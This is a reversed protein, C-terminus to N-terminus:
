ASSYWLSRRDTWIFKSQKRGVKKKHKSTWTYRITFVQLLLKWIQFDIIYFLDQISVSLYPSYQSFSYALKSFYIRCFSVTSLTAICKKRCKRQDFLPRENGAAFTNTDKRNCYELMFRLLVNIKHPFVMKSLWYPIFSCQVLSSSVVLSFIVAFM